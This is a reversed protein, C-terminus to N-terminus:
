KRGLLGGGGLIGGLLGGGSGGSGSGSSGGGLVGGIIGDLLGANDALQLNSLLAGDQGALIAKLLNSGLLQELLSDIVGPAGSPGGILGDLLPNGNAGLLHGLLGGNGELWSPLTPLLNFIDCVLNSVTDLLGSPVESMVPSIVHLINLCLNTFLFNQGSVIGSLLYQVDSELVLGCP